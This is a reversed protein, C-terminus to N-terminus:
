REAGGTVMWRDFRFDDLHQQRKELADLRFPVASLMLEMPSLFQRGCYTSCNRAASRSTLSTSPGSLWRRM